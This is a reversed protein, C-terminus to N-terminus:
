RYEDIAFLKNIDLEITNVRENYIVFENCINSLIRMDDIYLSIGQLFHNDFKEYVHRKKLKEILKDYSNSGDLIPVVPIIFDFFKTRDKSTFIDDRLLYFFRIVRKEKEDKDHNILTNIERLRQFINNTNYRDMDEFVFVDAHAKEFLYLVEDLYKDFVSDNDQDFLEIENGQVSVRKLIGRNHQAKAINYILLVILAALALIAFITFVPMTTPLLMEKIWSSELSVVYNTWNNYTLLYIFLVLFVTVGLALFISKPTSIHKKIKFNTQPIDEPKILHILQNLIKGELINESASDKTHKPYGKKEAGQQENQGSAPEEFNALSIHTFKKHPHLAKYSEIISSKGASYPGSIAVNRVDDNIFVFELANEYASLETDKQPTLKEFYLNKNEM